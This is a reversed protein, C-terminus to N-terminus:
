APRRFILRGIHPGSGTEFSALEDKLRGLTDEIEKLDYRSLSRGGISYTKGTSAALYAKKWAAILELLESRTWISSMPVSYCMYFGKDTVVPVVPM